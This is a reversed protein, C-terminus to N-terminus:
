TKTISGPTDLPASKIEISERKACPDIGTHSPDGRAGVDPGEQGWKGDM